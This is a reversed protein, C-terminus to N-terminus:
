DRQSLAGTQRFIHADIAVIGRSPNQAQATQEGQCMRTLRIERKGTRLYSVSINNHNKKIHM